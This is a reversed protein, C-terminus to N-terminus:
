KKLPPPPGSVQGVAFFCFFRTATPIRKKKNQARSIGVRNAVKEVPNWRNWPNLETWDGGGSKPTKRRNRSHGGGGGGGGGGGVNLFTFTTTKGRGRPTEKKSPTGGGGGGGGGTRTTQRGGVNKRWLKTTEAEFKEGRRRPRGKQGKQGDRASTEKKTTLKIVNEGEYLLCSRQQLWRLCCCCFLRACGCAREWEVGRERERQHHFLFVKYMCTKLM